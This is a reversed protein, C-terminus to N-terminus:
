RIQTALLSLTWYRRRRRVQIFVKRVSNLGLICTSAEVHTKSIITIDCKMKIMKKLRM